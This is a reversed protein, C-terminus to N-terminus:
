MRSLKGFVRGFIGHAEGLGLALTMGFYVIGYPGLVLIALLIPSHHGFYHRVGWGAAAALLAAVWLRALYDMPLGTRGIRRNLARRLLTFEVWSSIGASITLGAVGWRPEIGLLPPLPIACLYGLITTLLVRLV